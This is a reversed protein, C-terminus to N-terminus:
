PGRRSRRLLSMTEAARLLASSVAVDVGDLAPHDGAAAAAAAGAASLPPDAWGQWRGEANWESQAHRLLLVRTLVRMLLGPPRYARCIANGSSWSPLVNGDNRDEM